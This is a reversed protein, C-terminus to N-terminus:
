HYFREEWEIALTVGQTNDEEYELQNNGPELRLWDRRTMGVVTLAQFQNSEDELDIVTKEDTNVELTDDLAMIYDMEIEDDTRQNTIKADLTYNSQEANITVTPVGSSSLTLTVDAAEVLTDIGFGNMYTAHNLRVKVSGSTIAANYSWSEWTAATSPQPISYETTWLSGNYSQVVALWYILTEAYKEGNAFNVNTIGCPNHLEWQGGWSNVKIGLEEWPDALTDRNATYHYGEDNGFDNGALTGTKV